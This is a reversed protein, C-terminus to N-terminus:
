GDHIYVQGRSCECILSALYDLLMQLYITSLFLDVSYVIFWDRFYCFLTIGVVFFFISDYFNVLSLLFFSFYVGRFDYSLFYISTLSSGLWIIWNLLFSM